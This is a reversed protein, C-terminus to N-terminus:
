GQFEEGGADPNTQRVKQRDTKKQNFRYTVSMMVTRTRWQM